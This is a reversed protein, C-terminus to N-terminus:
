GEYGLPEAFNQVYFNNTKKDYFNLLKINKNTQKRRISSRKDFPKQREIEAKAVFTLLLPARGYSYFLFFLLL